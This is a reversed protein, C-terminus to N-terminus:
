IRLGRTRTLKSVVQRRYGTEGTDLDTLSFSIEHDRAVNNDIILDRQLGLNQDPDAATHPISDSATSTPTPSPTSESGGGSCGAISLTGVSTIVHLFRRRTSTM